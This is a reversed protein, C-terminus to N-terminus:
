EAPLPPNKGARVGGLWQKWAPTDYPWKAMEICWNPPEPSLFFAKRQAPTLCRPLIGRAHSILSETDRLFVEWIRAAGVVSVTVVHTGDPSMAAVFDSSFEGILQGTAEDWLQAVESATIIRKGDPSFAARPSSKAPLPLLEPEGQVSLPEGILNGTAVDWQRVKNDRSATVIRKGDPSFAASTVPGMDVALREGIPQGTAADWVRVTGDCSATVIRKGDLSFAASMVADTHGNLPEGIPKGTAADWVRATQDSSATVILRGDHSFAASNV